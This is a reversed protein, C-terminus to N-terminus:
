FLNFVCCFYFPSLDSENYVCAIIMVATMSNVKTLSEIVPGDGDENM